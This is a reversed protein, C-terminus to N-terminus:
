TVPPEPHEPPAVPPEPDPPPTEPTQPPDTPALPAGPPSKGACSELAFLTGAGLLVALATAAIGTRVARQAPGSPDSEMSM